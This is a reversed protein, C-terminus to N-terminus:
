NSPNQLEDWDAFDRNKIQEKARKHSEMVGQDSMLELSEIRDELEEVLRVIDIFAKREITMTEM